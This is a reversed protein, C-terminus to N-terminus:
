SKDEADQTNVFFVQLSVNIKDTDTSTTVVQDRATDWECRGGVLSGQGWQEQCYLCFYSRVVRISSFLEFKKLSTISLILSFRPKLQHTFM